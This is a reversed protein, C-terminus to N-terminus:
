NFYKSTQPDGYSSAMGEGSSRGSGLISGLDEVSSASAKGDSDGPFDMIFKSLTDSLLSMMKGVFTWTTLAIIKGTTMYPHSLQVM